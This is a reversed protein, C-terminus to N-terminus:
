NKKKTKQLTRGKRLGLSIRKLNQEGYENVERCRGSMTEERGPDRDGTGRGLGTGGVVGEGEGQTGRLETYVNRRSM